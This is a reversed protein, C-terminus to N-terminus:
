SHRHRSVFNANVTNSGFSATAGVFFNTGTITVTTGGAAPGTNPNVGTVTPATFQAQAESALGCACVIVVLVAAVARLCVRSRMWTNLRVAVALM